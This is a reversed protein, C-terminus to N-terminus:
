HRGALRDPAREPGTETGLDRVAALLESPLFPKALFRDAGARAANAATANGSLIIIRTSALAPDRRVAACVDLGSPGPMVIDLVAVDPRELHVLRLAQDGDVGETVEHGGLELVHRVLRRIQVSDDVILVRAM